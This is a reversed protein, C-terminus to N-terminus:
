EEEQELKVVKEKTVKLNSCTTYLKKTDNIAVDINRTSKEFSLSSYETKTFGPLLPELYAELLEGCGTYVHSSDVDSYTTFVGNMSSLTIMISFNEEIFGGYDDEDLEQEVGVSLMIRTSDEPTERIEIDNYFNDNDLEESAISLYVDDACLVQGLFVDTIGQRKQYKTLRM